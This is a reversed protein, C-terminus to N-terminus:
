KPTFISYPKYDKLINELTEYIFDYAKELEKDDIKIRILQLFSYFVSSYYSLDLFSYMIYFWENRELLEEKMKDITRYQTRYISYIKQAYLKKIADIAKERKQKNNLDLNILL